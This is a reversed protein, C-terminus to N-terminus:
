DELCFRSSFDELGSYNLAVISPNGLDDIYDKSKFSKEMRETKFLDM